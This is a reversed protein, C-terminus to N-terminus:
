AVDDDEVVVVSDDLVLPMPSVAVKPAAMMLADEDDSLVVRSSSMPVRKSPRADTVTNSNQDDLVACARKKKHLSPTPDVLAGSAKSALKARLVAVVRKLIDRHLPTPEEAASEFQAQADRVSPDMFDLDVKGTPGACDVLLRKADQLRRLPGWKKTSEAFLERRGIRLLRMNVKIGLAAAMHGVHMVTNRNEFDVHMDWTDVQDFTATKIWAEKEKRKALLNDNTYPPLAPTPVGSVPVNPITVSKRSLNLANIKDRLPAMCEAPFWLGVLREPPADNGTVQVHALKLTYKNQKSGRRDDAAGQEKFSQEAVVRELTPWISVVAGTLFVVHKIRWPCQCPRKSLDGDDLKAHACRDVTRTFETNWSTRALALDEAALPRYLSLLNERKYENLGTGPRMIRVKSQTRGNATLGWAIMVLKLGSTQVYFGGYGQVDAITQAFMQESVDEHVAFDDRTTAPNVLVAAQFRLERVAEGFSVGRDNRLIHTTVDGNATRILKQPATHRTTARGGVELASMDFSGAKKAELVVYNYMHSFLNFLLSQQAFPLGLLRNLFRKVDRHAQAVAGGGPLCAQRAAKALLKLLQAEDSIQAAPCPLWTSAGGGVASAERELALHEAADKLVAQVDVPVSLTKDKLSRYVHQLAKRGYETEVNFESLNMAGMSARRDGQTLAGLSELRRTVSTIFRYEGGLGTNLLGYRPASSQNTRHSRGLQQMAKDAAWPLELTLHVRRRQNAVGRDAHLSVGTSAAESIVAVLKDGRMFRAREDINIRGDDDAQAGYAGPTRASSKRPEFVVRGDPTRVCRMTRGTMEAVADTGGLKDILDDLACPPLKLAECREILVKQTHLAAAERSRKDGEPVINALDAGTLAADLADTNDDDDDADADSEADSAPKSRSKKSEKVCVPFHDELLAKLTSECVSYIAPRDNVEVDEGAVMSRYWAADDDDDNGGNSSSTTTTTTSASPTAAVVPTGTLVDNLNRNLAAEGTTQLGIVVCCNENLARTAEDLLKPVKFSMLLQKFFRQHAGWYVACLRTFSLQFKAAHTKMEIYVQRWLECADRYMKAQKAGLQASVVSFEVGTYGISRAVQAGCAKFQLALMERVSMGDVDGIAKRFDSFSDFATGAGWIGMRDLHRMNEVETIGTASSYVVRANPLADQIALVAKGSKTSKANPRQSEGNGGPTRWPAAGRGRGAAAPTKALADDDNDSGDNDADDDDDDGGGGGAAEDDVAAASKQKLVNKEKKSADFLNKAKHSEDFILCGDFEEAPRGNCLWKVLQDFRKVGGGASGILGAYTSFCIGLEGHGKQELQAISDVVPVDCGVDMLDRTADLHLDRSMSFWAHRKRGRAINDLIIAANQRGKGVGTGDAILFGARKGNLLKHQHRQCAFAVAELQLSSIINNNIQLALSEIIPYKAEPLNISSLSSAEVMNGPHECGFPLSRCHYPTWLNTTELAVTTDEEGAQQESQPGAAAAAAAVAAAAAAAAASRRPQPQPQSQPQSQSQAAHSPQPASHRLQAALAADISELRALMRDVSNLM